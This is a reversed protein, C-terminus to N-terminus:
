IKTVQALHQGGLASTELFKFFVIRARPRRLQTGLLVGCGTPEPFGAFREVSDEKGGTYKALLRREVSGLISEHM